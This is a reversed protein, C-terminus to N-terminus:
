ILQMAHLKKYVGNMAILDEHKGVEIISGQNLVLILDANKVTSLRHAIVLSTRNRMLNELAEQVLKESETDLASTAEDLILIPPNKMIARAICLRQKQGGSLLSGGDGIETQYTKEKQRIFEDANAIKAAIEIDKPDPNEIGFAINNAITDNFLISEQTVIGIQKRLESLKYEKIEKGDILIEGSDIDYFRPLLNALTTKGSGSQGVLAITQGKKITFSINNLVRKSGYSFSVNKFEISDKFEKLPISNESDHITVPTDIIENIRDLSVVGKKINYLAMSFSKAPHIVQIFLFLYTLLTAGAIEGKLVLSGGYVLAISITFVGIFETLPSALKQKRNVRNMLKTFLFTNHRFKSLVSKEGGFAKVVKIGSLTEEIIVTIGGILNQLNRSSTKLSKSIRGTLLALVPLIILILITMQYSLLFLSIIYVILLIPTKILGSFSSVMSQRVETIDTSLRSIIDGKKEQSFYSIQLDLIKAYAKNYIDRPVGNMVPSSFYQEFYESAVKLFTLIVLFAAVWVLAMIPGNDGYHIIVSSIVYSMNHLLAKEEFAFPVMTTVLEQEGFIISFFPIFMTISIVSFVSSILSLVLVIIVYKKYNLLYPMIKLIDKM